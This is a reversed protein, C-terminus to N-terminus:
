DSKWVERAKQALYFEKFAKPADWGTIVRTYEGRWTSVILLIRGANTEGLHQFREGDIEDSQVCVDVPDNSLAQEAESTSVGHRSLHDRNADDWVFSQQM